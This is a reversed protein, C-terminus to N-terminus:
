RDRTLVYNVIARLLDAESGFCNLAELAGAVTEEALRKSEALGYIAPFTAKQNRQDSGVDKGIKEPDGEIDLIDDTIQFALGLKEAYDTLRDLQSQDAGALIAGARVAARCLAGTKHSHIFQLLDPTAPQNEAEMDAVQGGVMGLSGAAQAVERCVRLVAAPTQGAAEDVTALVEFAQTLLADGALIATAEGYVKHNTPRGRRFDDNDMAPLADHILSYTHILELACAAPLVAKESGGVAEAAAMVLVPRLRKGGAFVSYRMAQHVSAPAVQEGPLFSNLAEDVLKIKQDMAQKWDWTM